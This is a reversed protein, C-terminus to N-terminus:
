PNLLESAILIGVSNESNIASVNIPNARDRAKILRMVSKYKNWSEDSLLMKRFIQQSPIYIITYLSHINNPTNWFTEQM